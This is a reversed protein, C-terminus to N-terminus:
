KEPQAIVQTKLLEVGQQKHQPVQLNMAFQQVNKVHKQVIKVPLTIPPMNQASLPVPKAFKAAYLTYSIVSNLNEPKLVLVFRVSTLVTAAYCFVNKTAQQLM